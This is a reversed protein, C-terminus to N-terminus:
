CAERTVHDTFIYSKSNLRKTFYIVFFLWLFWENSHSRESVAMSISSLVCACERDWRMEITEVITEVRLTSHQLPIISFPAFYSDMKKCKPGSFSEGARAKLFEVVRFFSPEIDKRSHPDLIKKSKSHERIRDVAAPDILDWGLCDSFSKLRVSKDLLIMSLDKPIKVFGILGLRDWSDGLVM